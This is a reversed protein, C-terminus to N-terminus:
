KKKKSKCAMHKKKDKNIQKDVEKMLLNRIEYYLTGYLYAKFEPEKEFMRYQAEFDVFHFLEHSLVDLDSWRGRYDALYLYRLGKPTRLYFGECREIDEMQEMVYDISEKSIEKKELFKKVQTANLGATIYLQADPTQVNFVTALTISKKLRSM